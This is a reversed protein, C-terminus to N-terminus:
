GVQTWTHVHRELFEVFPKLRTLTLTESVDELLTFVVTSQLAGPLAAFRVDAGTPFAICLCLCVVCVLCSGERSYAVAKDLMALAEEDQGAAVHKGLIQRFSIEVSGAGRPAHPIGM